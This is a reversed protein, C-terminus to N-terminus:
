DYEESSMIAQRPQIDPEAASESCYKNLAFLAADLSDFRELVFPLKENMGVIGAEVLLDVAAAHTSQSWGAATAKNRSWWEGRVRGRSDTRLTAFWHELIKAAEAEGALKSRTVFNRSRRAEQHRRLEAQLARNQNRLEALAHQLQAAQAAHEAELREIAQYAQRKRFEAEVVTRQVAQLRRLTQMKDGPVIRLVLGTGLALAGATLGIQMAASWPAGAVLPVVGFLLAAGVGAMASEAFHRSVPAPQPRSVNREAQRIYDALEDRSLERPM